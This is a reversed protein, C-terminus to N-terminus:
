DGETWKPVSPGNPVKKPWKPVMPGNIYVQGM